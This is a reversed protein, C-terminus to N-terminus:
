IGANGCTNEVPENTADKAFLPTDSLRNYLTEVNAVSANKPPTTSLLSSLWSKTLGLEEALDAIVLTRPRERLLRITESLLTKQV